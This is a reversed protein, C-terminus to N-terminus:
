ALSGSPNSSGIYTRAMLVCQIRAAMMVSLPSTTKQITTSCRDLLTCAFEYSDVFLSRNLNHAGEFQAGDFAPAVPHPKEIKGMVGRARLFGWAGGSACSSSDGGSDGAGPQAPRARSTKPRGDEMAIRGSSSLVGGSRRHYERRSKRLQSSRIGGKNIAAIWIRMARALM